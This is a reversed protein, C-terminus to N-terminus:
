QITYHYHNGKSSSQTVTQIKSIQNTPYKLSTESQQIPRNVNQSQEEEAEPFVITRPSCKPHVSRFDISENTASSILRQKEGLTGKLLVLGSISAVRMEPWIQIHIEENRIPALQNKYYLTNDSVCFYYYVDCIKLRGGCLDFLSVNSQLPIIDNLRMNQTYSSAYYGSAFKAILLYHGDNKLPIDFKLPINNIKHNLNEDKRYLDRDSEPVNGLDLDSHYYKQIYPSVDKQYIIGDSDTHADGGANFAYIQEYAIVNSVMTLIVVVMLKMNKAGSSQEFMKRKEIQVVKSLQEECVIQQLIKFIGTRNKKIESL